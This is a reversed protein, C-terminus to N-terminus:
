CALGLRTHSPGSLGSVPHGNACNYWHGSHTSIGGSGSVMAAKIAKLEEPTVEEYRPGALLRVTADIAVHLGESESLGDCLSGARTLRDRVTDLDWVPALPKADSNYVQLHFGSAYLLTAAISVRPLSADAARDCLAACGQLFQVLAKQRLAAKAHESGSGSTDRFITEHVKLQLLRAKLTVQKDFASVSGPIHSGPSVDLEQMSATLSPLDDARRRTIIADHLQKAPQHETDMKERLLGVERILMRAVQYRGKGLGATKLGDKMEGFRRELDELSRQGSALFRKTTEDMVAKNIVRNYRRTSFQRIPRRCDPCLPVDKALAASIDELGKFEGKSDLSYVQSMGVLLDLTEGTYFHGCTLVVVPLEGLDIDAYEKFETFDVRSEGQDGCVQCFKRDMPCEEGCFSPCQHGCELLKDCRVDCPLRNCPAACPM